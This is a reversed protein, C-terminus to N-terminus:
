QSVRESVPLPSRNLNKWIQMGNETLVIPDTTCFYPNSFECFPKTIQLQSTNQQTSQLVHGPQM